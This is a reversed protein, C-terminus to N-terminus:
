SLGRFKDRRAVLMRHVPRRWIEHMVVAFVAGSLMTPFEAKPAGDPLVLVLSVFVTLMVIQMGFFRVASLDPFYVKKVIETLFYLSLMIVTAAGFLVQWIM